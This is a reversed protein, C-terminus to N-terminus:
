KKEQERLWIKTDIMRKIGDLSNTNMSVGRQIASFHPVPKSPHPLPCLGFEKINWGRYEYRNYVQNFPIDKNNYESM